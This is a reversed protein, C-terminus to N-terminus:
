VRGFIKDFFTKVDQFWGRIVDCTSRTAGCDTCTKGKFHHGTADITEGQSVVEGCVSCVEDGTYGAETCTPEVANCLATKHGLAPIEEQAVLVEGCVSCVKGETKGATTCTAAIAAVTEETHGTAPAVETITDGCKSCTYTAEGAELCSATSGTLVYDHECASKPIGVRQLIAYPYIGSEDWKWKLSFDFKNNVYVGATSLEDISCGTALAQSKETANPNNGLLYLCNAPAIYADKTCNAVIDGVIDDESTAIIKGINYCNSFGTSAGRSQHYGDSVSTCRTYSGAIGGATISSEVKGTNYCDHVFSSAHSTTSKPRGNIYRVSTCNESYSNAIIGGAISNGVVDGTNVCESITTGNQSGCIGGAKNGNIDAANQCGTISPTDDVHEYADYGASAAIGGVYWLGTVNGLNACDIVQGKGSIVSTIGATYSYAGKESSVECKNTCNIIVGGNLKGVFAATYDATSSVTGCITLNKVTGTCTQIMAAITESTGSTMINLNTISHGAGDLTGGFSKIMPFLKDGLDIDATLAYYNKSTSSPDQLSLYYLQAGNAIQYPDDSTGTGGAFVESTRGDWTDSSAQATVCMLTVALLLVLLLSLVRKKM